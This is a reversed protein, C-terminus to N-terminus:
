NATTAEDLLEKKQARKIMAALAEESLRHELSNFDKSSPHYRWDPPISPPATMRPIPKKGDAEDPKKKPMNSEKKKLIGKLAKVYAPSLVGEAVALM